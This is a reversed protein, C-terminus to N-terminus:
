DGKVIFKHYTTAIYRTGNVILQADSNDFDGRYSSLDFGPDSGDIKLVGSVEMSNSGNYECIRTSNNYKDCGNDLTVGGRKWKNFVYILATRDFEIESVSGSTILTGYVFVVAGAELSIKGGKGFKLTVGPNIYLESEGPIVVEETLTITEGSAASRMMTIFKDSSSPPVLKGKVAAYATGDLLFEGNGYYKFRAATKDDFNELIASIDCRMRYQGNKKSIQVLSVEKTDTQNSKITTNGFKWEGLEVNLSYYISNPLEIASLDRTKLTGDIYLISTDAITFTKGNPIELTTGSMVYLVDNEPMKLSEELTMTEGPKLNSLKYKFEYYPTPAVLVNNNSLYRIGNVYFVGHGSYVFSDLTDSDFSNMYLPYDNQIFYEDEYEVIRAVRKLTEEELKGKMEANGIQWAGVNYICTEAYEGNFVINDISPTSLTGLVDLGADASIIINADESLKLTVGEPVSMRKGEPITIEDDLEYTNGSEVMFLSKWFLEFESPTCLEDNFYVKGENKSNLKIDKISDRDTGTFDLEAAKKLTINDIVGNVTGTIASNKRNVTLKKVEGGKEVNFKLKPATVVISNGSAYESYSKVSKINVTKVKAYNNVTAKPASIDITLKSFTGKNINFTKKKDTKITMKVLKSNQLAKDIASQTSVTVVTKKAAETAVPMGALVIVLALLIPLLRKVYIKM